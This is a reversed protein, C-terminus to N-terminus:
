KPVAAVICHHKVDDYKVIHAIKLGARDLLSEWDGKSREMGSHLAMMLMNMSSVQWPVKMEPLVAEDLLILSEPGMASITNKLIRVCDNDPWDHLVHRLYYFKAGHIPQPTFFDYEEFDIGAPKDPIHKLTSPLDEVVIRGEIHPFKKKFFVSHQGFGGGIDVLVASDNSPKFDQLEKEVPYSETWSQTGDLVMVHGLAKMLVPNAELYDFPSLDTRLAKHFPLDNISDMNQYNHDKLWQPMAYTTPAQVVSIHPAAGEVHPNALIVTVRNAQFTDQATEKVLGFSAMSRLVHKMLTPAAGTKDVFEKHSVTTSSSALTTFIKLDTGIQILAWRLPAYASSFMVEWDTYLDYQLDRIQDQIKQREAADGKTYQERIENLAADM